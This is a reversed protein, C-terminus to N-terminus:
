PHIEFSRLTRITHLQQAWERHTRGDRYLLDYFCWDYYLRSFFFVSRVSNEIKRYMKIPRALLIMLRYQNTSM